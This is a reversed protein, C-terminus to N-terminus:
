VASPNTGTLLLGKELHLLRRAREAARPDHTVMIITKGFEQNLQDILNLIEEASVRDLDGTPEDAVLIAPDTVIARAIAVRQQQGGSLESPRHEMRDSLGVVSLATEVHNRRQRRNMSTLLLPLEVNEFATLVPILNYFQFIFGV